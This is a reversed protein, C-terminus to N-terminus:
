SQITENNSIDDAESWTVGIIASFRHHDRLSLLDTYDTTIRLNEVCNFFGRTETLDTGDANWFLVM